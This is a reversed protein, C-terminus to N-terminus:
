AARTGNGSEPHHAFWRWWAHKPASRGVVRHHEADARLAAQRYAIEAKLAEPIWESM